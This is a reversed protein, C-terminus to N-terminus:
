RPRAAPGDDDGALTAARGLAACATSVAGCRCAMQGSEEARLHAKLVAHAEKMCELIEVVQGVDRVSVVLEAMAM